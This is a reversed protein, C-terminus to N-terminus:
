KRAQLKLHLIGRAADLTVLYRGLFNNGLIGDLGPGPDHVVVAADRLEVSGVRLSAVTSSGGSTRGALTQLEVGQRASTGHIGLATALAPSVLTVSSGSDVLFRAHHYGNLVATVVWVGRMAELPVATEGGEGDVPASGLDVLAEQALRAIREPPEM